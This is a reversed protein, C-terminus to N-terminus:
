GEKRSGQTTESNASIHDSTNVTALESNMRDKFRRFAARMTEPIAAGHPLKASM